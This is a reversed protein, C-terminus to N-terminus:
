VILASHGAPDLAVGRRCRPWGQRGRGVRRGPWGSVTGALGRGAALLGLDLGLGLGSLVLVLCSWSWSWSWSLVIGFRFVVVAAHISDPWKVPHNRLV